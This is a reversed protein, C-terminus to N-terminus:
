YIMIYLCLLKITDRCTFANDNQNCGHHTPGWALSLHWWWDSYKSDSAVVTKADDFVVCTRILTNRIFGKYGGNLLETLPSSATNFAASSTHHLVNWYGSVSIRTTLAFEIVDM